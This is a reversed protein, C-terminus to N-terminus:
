FVGDQLHIIVISFSVHKTWRWTRFILNLEISIVFSAQGTDFDPLGSDSYEGNHFRLFILFKNNRVRNNISSAQGHRNGIQEPVILQGSSDRILFETSVTASVVESFIRHEATQEYSSANASIQWKDQKLLERRQATILSVITKLKTPHIRPMTLSWSSWSNIMPIQLKEYHLSPNLSLPSLTTIPM